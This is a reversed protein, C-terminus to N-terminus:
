NRATQLAGPLTEKVLVGVGILAFEGWQQLEGQDFKM